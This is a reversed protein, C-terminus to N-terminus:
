QKNIIFLHGAITVEHLVSLVVQKKYYSMRLFVHM